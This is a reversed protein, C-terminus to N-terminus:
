LINGSGGADPVSKEDTSWGGPGASSLPRLVDGATAALAITVFPMLVPITRSRPLGQQIAASSGHGGYRLANRADALSPQGEKRGTHRRAARWIEPGIGDGEIWYVRKSSM